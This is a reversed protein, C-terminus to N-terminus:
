QGAEPEASEGEDLQLDQNFLNKYVEKQLVREDTKRMAEPLAVLVKLDEEDRGGPYLRKRVREIESLPTMPASLESAAAAMGFLALVFIVMTKMPRLNGLSPGPSLGIM